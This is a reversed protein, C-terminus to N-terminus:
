LLKDGLRYHEPAQSERKTLDVEVDRSAQLYGLEYFACFSELADESVDPYDKRLSDRLDVLRMELRSNIKLNIEM